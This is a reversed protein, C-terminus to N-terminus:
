HVHVLCVHMYIAAHVYNHKLHKALPLWAHVEVSVPKTM